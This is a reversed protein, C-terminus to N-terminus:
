AEVHDVLLVVIWRNILEQLLDECDLHLEAVAELEVEM